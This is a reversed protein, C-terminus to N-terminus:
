NSNTEQLFICIWAPWNVPIPRPIFAGNNKNNNNIVAHMIRIVTHLLLLKHQSPPLRMDFLFNSPVFRPTSNNLCKANVHCHPQLSHVVYLHDVTARMFISIQLCVLLRLSRPFICRWKDDWAFTDTETMDFHITFNIYITNPRCICIRMDGRCDQIAPLNNVAVCVTHQMGLSFAYFRNKSANIRLTQFIWAYQM